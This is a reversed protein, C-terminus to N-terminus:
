AVQILQHRFNNLGTAFMPNISLSGAHNPILSSLSFFATQFHISTKLRGKHLFPLCTNIDIKFLHYLSKIFLRKTHIRKLRITKCSEFWIEKLRITKDQKINDLAPSQIFPM